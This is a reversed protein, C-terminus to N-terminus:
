EIEGDYYYWIKKYRKFRSLETHTFEKQHSAYHAKFLVKGVKDSSSGATTSIVELKTYAVDELSSSLIEKLNKERKDPHTTEVIYDIEKKAYARYRSRMLEEASQPLELKSIFRQCCESYPKTTGCPCINEQNTM